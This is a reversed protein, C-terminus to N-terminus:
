LLLDILIIMRNLHQMRKRKIRKDGLKTHKLWDKYVYFALHMTTIDEQLFEVLIPRPRINRIIEM